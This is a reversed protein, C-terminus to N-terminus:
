KRGKKGKGRLSFSYWFFSIGAATLAMGLGSYFVAILIEPMFNLMYIIGSLLLVALVLTVFRLDFHELLLTKEEEYNVVQNFYRSARRQFVMTWFVIFVACSLGINLVSAHDAYSTIGLRLVNFGTTVWILGTLNLLTKKSVKSHRIHIFACVCLVALLIVVAILGAFEWPDGVFSFIRDNQVEPTIQFQQTGTM